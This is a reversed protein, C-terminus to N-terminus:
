ATAAGLPARVPYGQEALVVQRAVGAPGVILPALLNATPGDDHPTVIVLVAVEGGGVAARDADDIVPAYGDLYHTPDIAFLRVEDGTLTVLGTAGDVEDICYDLVGDIGLLPEVLTLTRADIVADTARM